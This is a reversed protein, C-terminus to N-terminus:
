AQVEGTKAARNRAERERVARLHEVDRRHFLRVGSGTKLAASLRGTRELYRVMDPSLHLIHAAEGVLVFPSETTETIM